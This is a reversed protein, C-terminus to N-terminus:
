EKRNVTQLRTYALKYNAPKLRVGDVRLMAEARRAGGCGHDLQEHAIQRLADIRM